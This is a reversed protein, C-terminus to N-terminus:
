TPFHVGRCAGLTSDDAKSLTVFPLMDHGLGEPAGLPPWSSPTVQIPVLPDHLPDVSTLM